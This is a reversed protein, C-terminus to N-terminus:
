SSRRLHAGFRERLEGLSTAARYLQAFDGDCVQYQTRGDHTRVKVALLGDQLSAAVVCQDESSSRMAFGFEAEEATIEIPFFLLTGM